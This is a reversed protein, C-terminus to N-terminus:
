PFRCCDPGEQEEKKPSFVVTAVRALDELEAAQQTAVARGGAPAAAGAAAAGTGLVASAAAAEAATARSAFFFNNLTAVIPRGGPGKTVSKAAAGTTAVAGVKTGAKDESSGRKFGLVLAGAAVGLTAVVGLVYATSSLPLEHHPEPDAELTFYFLPFMIRQPSLAGTPLDEQRVGLQLYNAVQCDDDCVAVMNVRYRVGPSLKKINMERPAGPAFVQPTFNGAVMAAWRELGCVTTPLIGLESPSMGTVRMAFDTLNYAYYAVYKLGVATANIDGLFVQPPLWTINVESQSIRKAAM